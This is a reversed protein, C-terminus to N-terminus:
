VSGRPPQRRRIRFSTRRTRAHFDIAACRTGTESRPVRSGPGPPVTERDPASPVLSSFTLTISPPWASESRPVPYHIYLRAPCEARPSRVADTTRSRRRVSSPRPDTSPAGTTRDGGRTCLEGCEAHRHRWRRAGGPRSSNVRLRQFSQDRAWCPGTARRSWAAAAPTTDSGRSISPLRQVTRRSAHRRRASTKLTIACM